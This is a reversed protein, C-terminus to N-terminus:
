PCRHADGGRWRIQGMCPDVLREVEAILGTM